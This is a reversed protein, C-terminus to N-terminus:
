FGFQTKITWHWHDKKTIAEQMFALDDQFSVLRIHDRAVQGTVSFRGNFFSRKLYVSWKIDDDKSDFATIPQTPYPQLYMYINEYSNPYDNGYWEWEVSLLDLVKFTPVNFGFVVPRRKNVATYYRPYDKVGLVAIEAYLRLDNTGFPSSAPSVFLMKPDLMIRAMLKTGASTFYTTDGLSDVYPARKYITYNENVSWLRNFSVGGGIEVADSFSAKVILSPSFDQLPYFLTESTLLFDGAGKFKGASFGGSIRFGLLRQAPFDFDNMIYGPYTGTRFLYEGLNRVEPNYKFPFYGVAFQGWRNGQLDGLTYIGQLQTPYFRFGPFLTSKWLVNSSSIYSFVMAFEFGLKMELGPALRADAGLQGIAQQLWTHDLVKDYDERVQQIGQGKVIQGFEYSVSGTLQLDNPNIASAIGGLLIVVTFINRLLMKGSFM